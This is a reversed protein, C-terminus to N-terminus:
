RGELFLRAPLACAEWVRRLSGKRAGRTLFHRWGRRRGALPDRHTWPAPPPRAPPPPPPRSAVGIFLRFSALLQRKGAVGGRGGARGKVGCLRYRAVSRSPLGTARPQM